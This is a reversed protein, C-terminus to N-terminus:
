LLSSLLSIGTMNDPKPINLLELITPAVDALMGIPSSLIEVLEKESRPTTRQLQENIYCLPVPNSTHDTEVAGTQPNLMEEANGHDATILMVGGLAQVAEHVRGLCIDMFACAELAADFNGTHGVMDANAYNVFVIDYAGSQLEQILRDTIARAEMRPEMAFNIAASSKILVHQEGPFPQEHGGNLYYTIHAYKETEAVHLQKLGADSIVKALPNEVADEKYAYPVKIDPDYSTMTVFMLNKLLRREFGQFDSQAFARTLQRARDPRFNFFIVADNDKITAIPGGGRTIAMPTIMEDYLNQRYAQEVAQRATAAGAGRPGGTLMDYTQKTREWNQNRDMAYFRGTVSAVRGVGYQGIKKELELLYTLASQPPTDRGDTFLHLYVNQDLGSRKALDLLAYLHNIHSHIGGPSVLGMLHLDSKNKKAHEIAMLFTENKYFSEDSIAKNVKPLVQYQVQGAGINRHGTESNGKEGWPLGVEIGAALLSSVPYQNYFMDMNPTDAAMIANGKEMFSIGWGDLIAVVVPRFVQGQTNM